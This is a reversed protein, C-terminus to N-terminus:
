EDEGAELIVAQRDGTPYAVVMRATQAGTSRADHKPTKPFLSPWAPHSTISRMVSPTTWNVGCCISCKMATPTITRSNKCGSEIEVYGFTINAGTLLDGSILWRISGWGFQNAQEGNVANTYKNHSNNM